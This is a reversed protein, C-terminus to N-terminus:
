RWATVYLTEGNVNLDADAGLIIGGGSRTLRYGPVNSWTASAPEAVTASTDSTVYDVRLEDSGIKVLDGVELDSLFKTGTGTINRAGAVTSFVGVLAEGGAAGLYPTVGNTTAFSIDTAGVGSDVVKQMSANPMRDNWYGTCNGTINNLSVACPVFGFNFNMAAGVGDRVIVAVHPQGLSM